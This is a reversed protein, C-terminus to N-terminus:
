HRLHSPIALAPCWQDGRPITHRHDPRNRSRRWVLVGLGEILVSGAFPLKFAIAMVRLVLTARSASRRIYTGTDVTAMTPTLGPQGPCAPM